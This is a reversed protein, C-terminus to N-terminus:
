TPQATGRQDISAFILPHLATHALRAAFSATIGHLAVVVLLGLAAGTLLGAAVDLPYHVGVYVRGFAMLVALVAALVGLKRDLLFLGAAFAGAIVSHDSPMSFDHGCRLLVLAHHVANCPRARSILPSILEQNVELAVVTSLGTLVTTAVAGPPYFRQRARWWGILLLLTLATLGGWWAYASMAGQLWPTSRAFGNIKLYITTDVDM